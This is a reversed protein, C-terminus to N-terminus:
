INNIIEVIQNISKTFMIDINLRTTNDIHPVKIIPTKKDIVNMLTQYTNICEINKEQYMPIIFSFIKTNNNIEKIDKIGYLLRQLKTNTLPYSINFSVYEIFKFIPIYRNLYSSNCDIILYNFYKRLLNIQKSLLTPTVLKEVFTIIKLNKKINSMHFGPLLFKNVINKTTLLSNSQQSLEGIHLLMVKKSQSLKVAVEYAITSAGINTKASLFALTKM